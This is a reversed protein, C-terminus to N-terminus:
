AESDAESSAEGTSDEEAEATASEQTDGAEGSGSTKMLEGVLVTAFSGPPLSFTTAIYPGHEDVGASLDVDKPQVRLPRRAGKIRDVGENRFDGPKLGVEDFVAQEIAGPEGAPMSMRYGLLPGTPSIEWAAARPQEAAADEVKFCAGNEHKYAWDGTMLQDITEIRKTLVANFMNSQLASIWLRRLKQDIARVAANPKHTKM